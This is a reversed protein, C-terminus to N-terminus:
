YMLSREIADELTLEGSDVGQFSIEMNIKERYTQRFFRINVTLFM